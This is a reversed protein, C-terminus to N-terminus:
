KVMSSVSEQDTLDCSVTLCKAGADKCLVELEEAEKKNKNYCITLDYGAKALTYAIAKGIGGSAGTVIVNKSM